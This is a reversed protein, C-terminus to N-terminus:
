VVAGLPRGPFREIIEPVQDTVILPCGGAIAKLAMMCFTELRDSPVM